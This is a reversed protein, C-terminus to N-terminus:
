PSTPLGAASLHQVFADRDAADRRFRIWLTADAPDPTINNSRVFAPTVYVGTSLASSAGVAPFQGPTATIGVIRVNAFRPHEADGVIFRIV